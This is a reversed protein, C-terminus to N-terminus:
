EGDGGWVYEGKEVGEREMDGYGGMGIEMDDGVEVKILGGENGGEGEGRGCSEGEDGEEEGVGDSEEGRGRGGGDRGM